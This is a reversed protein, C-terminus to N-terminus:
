DVWIPNSFIWPRWRGRVRQDVELRYVGPLEVDRELHSHSYEERIVRGNRILRIRGPAPLKAEVLAPGKRALRGGMTVRQSGDLAEFQFGRPPNWLDLSVYSQGLRLANLVAARDNALDGRFAHPLLVHTRITRFAYDFPFLTKTVGFLRKRTAHNDIEGIAVCHSRQALEDWRRLTEPRPGRLVGAPCALARLVGWLSTLGSTWDGMLDWISLGTFGRAEWDVWPYARIGVFPAGAHDPHAIFGFGGQANVTDIVDQSHLDTKSVVLPSALNFALYHNYRPSIEEGVLLLLKRGGAQHMREWGDKQADLNFHDTLLAFDLGAKLGSQIIQDVPVQADYSYASHFHISGAYDFM